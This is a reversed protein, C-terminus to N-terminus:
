DALVQEVAYGASAKEIANTDILGALVILGKWLAWGKGRVWLEDDAAIAARFVERSKKELFTWAIVADCAPDGVGMGGWDIVASLVGHRVLLNGAAVDGHYWVPKAPLPSALAREWIATARRSDLKSGLVRIARRTQEDYRRLSGGRLKRVPGGAPDIQQLRALFGGLDRAFRSLDGVGADHATEGALWRYVSWHYPYLIGPAGMALPEPVPLPLQPALVPLWWQEKHVARAYAAGSPLRVLMTDGLHFTRNDWGSLAVPTVSLDAWQPFQQAILEAVVASDIDIRQSQPETM